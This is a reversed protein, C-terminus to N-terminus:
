SLNGQNIWRRSAEIVEAPSRPTDAFRMVVFRKNDYDIRVHGNALFSLGSAAPFPSWFRRAEGPQTFWYGNTQVKTVTRNACYQPQWHEVVELVLGPALRKKFDTLTKM